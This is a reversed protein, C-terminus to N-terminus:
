DVYATIRPHVVNIHQDSTLSHELTDDFDLVPTETSGHGEPLGRWPESHAGAHASTGPSQTCHRMLALFQVNCCLRRGASRVWSGVGEM